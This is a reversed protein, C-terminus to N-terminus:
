HLLAGNTRRRHYPDRTWLCIGSTWTRGWGGEYCQPGGSSTASLLGLRTLIRPPMQAAGELTDKRASVQYNPGGRRVFIAIRHELIAERHKKLARIIGGFTTAVNTFNAIGGGIILCKPKPPGEAPLM